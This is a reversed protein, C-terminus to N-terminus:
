PALALLADIRDSRGGHAATSAALLSAFAACWAWLRQQDVGLASALERSRPEWSRPDDEGWFVWDVADTAADGVCPRPDIAVLGRMAGGDLVNSPNLDGHLLVPAVVEAALARALEYGRQLRVVPVARTVAESRGYREIWHEFVFEVRGELSVVGDAVVPAGSRHLADILAAVDSLGVSTRLESLTTESQMAELLLAGLTADYGWVLPVRGSSAWSRLAFAEAGALDADPTLKLVAARGDLLRCRVVLSTNGRGVADGVALEWREALEPLAAPLREWWPEVMGGFRARLRDRTADLVPSSFDM